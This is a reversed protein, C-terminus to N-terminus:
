RVCMIPVTHPCMGPKPWLCNQVTHWSTSEISCMRVCHGVFVLCVAQFRAACVHGCPRSCHGSILRPRISPIPHTSRGSGLGIWACICCCGDFGEVLCLPAELSKCIKMVSVAWRTQTMRQSLAMWFLCCVSSSVLALHSRAILSLSVQSRMM